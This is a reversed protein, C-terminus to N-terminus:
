YSRCYLSVLIPHLSIVSVVAYLLSTMLQLASVLSSYCIFCLSLIGQPIGARLCAGVTGAGGHHLVAACEKFLLSHLVHGGLLLINSIECTRDSGKSYAEVAVPRQDARSATGTYDVIVSLNECISTFNCRIFELHDHCIIIFSFGKIAVVARCFVTWDFARILVETMSGFDICIVDCGQQKVFPLVACPLTSEHHSVDGSLSEHSIFGSMIYRDSPWYGPSPFFQPSAALLVIPKKPPSYSPSFTPKLNLSRRLHDYMDSLTPWLWEDYDQWTARDAAHRVRDDGPFKVIDDKLYPISSNSDALLQRHLYPATCKLMSLFNQPRKSPPKHPHIFICRVSKLEAVFWGALCFLNAIVLSLHDLHGIRTCIANMESMSYFTEKDRFGLQSLQIYEASFQSDNEVAYVCPPFYSEVSARHCINTVFIIHIRGTLSSFNQLEYSVILLPLVDGLTGLAFITITKKHDIQM